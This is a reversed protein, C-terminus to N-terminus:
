HGASWSEILEAVKRFQARPFRYYSRSESLHRAIAAANRGAHHDDPPAVPTPDAGAELLLRVTRLAGYQAANMLVTYGFEDVRNVDAGLAILLRTVRANNWSAANDLAEDGRQHADAGGALLLGVSKVDGNGSANVFLTEGDSYERDAPAGAALLM